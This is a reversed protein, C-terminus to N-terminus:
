ASVSGYHLPAGTGDVIDRGIAEFSAQRVYDPRHLEIGIGLRGDDIAYRLFAGVSLPPEGYYLPIRLMFKNPVDIHGTKSRGEVEVAYEFTTDGTQSRYATSFNVKRQASFDRALELIDAGAPAEIDAMNEELFRVFTAQAHLQGSVGSWRRWEESDKLTFIARHEGTQSLPSQGEQALHYDLVAVFKGGALDAFIRTGAGSYTSVYDIFSQKATLTVGQKVRVPAPARYHAPTQEVLRVKDSHAIFTRGDALVLVAPQAAQEALDAIIRADPTVAPKESATM